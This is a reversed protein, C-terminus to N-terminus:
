IYGSVPLSFLGLLALVFSVVIVAAMAHVVLDVGRRVKGANDSMMKVRNCM